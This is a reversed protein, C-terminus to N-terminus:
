KKLMREWSDLVDAGQYYLTKGLKRASLEGKIELNRLTEYGISLQKLLEQQSYYSDKDLKIIM